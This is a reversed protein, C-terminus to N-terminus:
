LRADCYHHIGQTMFEALGPAFKEYYAAFREDESYMTGLGRFMQLSCDYFQGMHQHYAEILSLVKSDSPGRDMLQVIKLLIDKGEKQIARMDDKSWNKMREQSQKWADTHGWREKAEAQYADMQERSLGDFLDRDEPLNDNNMTTLTNTLTTLIQNMRDRKLTLMKKQGKLVAARDYDPADLIRAIEQLPFELERFFLIQQLRLLQPQEYYRYGNKGVSAPKLLGIDDYHHLTRVSVHALKALQQVTYAM